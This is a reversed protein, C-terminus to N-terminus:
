KKQQSSIRAINEEIKIVNPHTSPYINRYIKLADTYYALADNPQKQDDYIAGINNYTSAFKPHQPPLTRKYIKLAEQYHFLADEYLNLLYYANGMNNFSMGLSTEDSSFHKKRIELAKTYYALAEKYLKEEQYHIGINNYCVALKALGKDGPNDELLKVGQQYYEFAKKSDGKKRYVEGISNYNSAIDPRPREVAKMNIKLSKEYWQLSTDYDGKENAVGGLAEYCRALDPHNTPELEELLRKYYIEAEEVKGMTMLVHGFSLLKNEDKIMDYQGSNDSCLKLQVIWMGEKHRYIDVIQFISGLMFLVEEEEENYSYPRINAFPKDNSLQPDADIEFLIQELGDNNEFCARARVDSMTASFFSNISIFQGSSNKLKKLEDRSMLQSRYVKIPTKRRLEELQRRIDVIFFQFLFLIDINQTRLAKNLIRSLFTERTYWWIATKPTYTEEFEYITNLEAKNNKYIQKSIFILERKDNVDAKM